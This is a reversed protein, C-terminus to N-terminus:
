RIGESLWRDVSEFRSIETGLLKAVRAVDVASPNIAEVAKVRPVWRTFLNVLDIDSTTLGVGWFTLTTPHLEPIAQIITEAIEHQAFHKNLRPPLFGYHFGANKPPTAGTNQPNGFAFGQQDLDVLLNLSGHPKAIIIDDKNIDNPLYCIKPYKKRWISIDFITDYNLNLVLDTPQLVDVVRDSEPFPKWSGGNENFVMLMRRKIPQLVGHYLVNWWEEGYPSLYLGRWNWFFEFYTEINIGLNLIEECRFFEDRASYLDCSRGKSNLFDVLSKGPHFEDWLSRGFNKILPMELNAPANLAKSEAYSAGAGVVLVRMM